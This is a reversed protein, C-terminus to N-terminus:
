RQQAVVRDPRVLVERAGHRGFWETLWRSGVEDVVSPRHDVIRLSPVGVPAAASAATSLHSFGNGLLSDLRVDGSLTRVMPTPVLRGVASSRAGWRPPRVLPGSALPPWARATIQAPLGPVAAVARLLESRAAATVAGGRVMLEGLGAAVRIVHTVHPRRELEYTDLVAEDLTGDLVGAIKWELNAADRVGACMGQGLFPPTQHAADGLLLVRGRRWREAVRAAYTYTTARLVEWSAPPGLWPAALGSLRDPRTLGAESEGALVALELRYRRPGVRMFTVARRPDCVQLVGQWQDLEGSTRVDLVFWTRSPGLSRLTVGLRQRVGSTAGDCALVARARVDAGAATTVAVEDDSVQRLDVVREGTRVDARGALDARLVRELDPQDFMSAGPLGDVGGTPDRALELLVRRDGDLLRMGLGPTSIARVRDGLGMRTLVRLVEDDLHVARPLAYPDRHRELVTVRLGRRALLGAATLGTPGAGIVVVDTRTTM